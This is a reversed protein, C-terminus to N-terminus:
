TTVWASISLPTISSEATADPVDGDPPDTVDGSADADTSTADTDTVLVAFVIDTAPTPSVTVYVNTAVLVPCAANVPTDIVSVWTAGDNAVLKLAISQTDRDDGDPAHEPVDVDNAAPCDAVNM